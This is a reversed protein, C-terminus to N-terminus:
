FPIEETDKGKLESVAEQVKGKKHFVKFGHYEKGNKSESMGLYVIKVKDGIGINQFKDGLVTNNWVGIVEGDEKEIQYLVSNNPGVNEERGVYIGTLEKETTYDWAQGAGIEVWDDTM